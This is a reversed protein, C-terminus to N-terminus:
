VQKLVVEEGATYRHKHKEAFVTVGGKGQVIWREGVGVLATGGEVGVVTVQRRTSAITTSFAKPIEDFHPIIAIGPVLGLAPLTRWVQPFDFLAGGLAMAGASCGAVVGGQQYLHQIAQWAASGELTELLYRPKGGSFYVFNANALQEVIEPRDADERTLLMVAEAEAGLKGFHEVGMKAWRQPVGEGDPASATPVIAVRPTERMQAIIYADVPQMTPLFEGAGVLAVIGSQEIAVTNGKKRAPQPVRRENRHEQGTHPLEM